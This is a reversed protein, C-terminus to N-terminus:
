KEGDQINLLHYHRRSDTLTTYMCLLISDIDTHVSYMYVGDIRRHCETGGLSARRTTYGSHFHYWGGGRYVVKPSPSAEIVWM